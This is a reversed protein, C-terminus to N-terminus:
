RQGSETIHLSDLVQDRSTIYRYHKQPLSFAYLLERLAEKEDPTVPIHRNVLTAAIGNALLGLEGVFHFKRYTTLQEEPLRDSLRDLLEGGQRRIAAWKQRQEPTPRPPRGEDNGHDATM